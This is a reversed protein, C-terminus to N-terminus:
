GRDVIINTLNNREFKEILENYRQEGEQFIEDANLQIDGFPTEINSYRRRIRGIQMMFMAICLDIFYDELEPYIDSLEPDIVREYVITASGNFIPTIRIRNPPIFQHTYHYISFLETTNARHVNLAYEPVEEYNFAGIFPHGTLLRTGFTPVFETISLIQRDDPDVVYYESKRGDIVRIDPNATDITISWKSPFYKSFKKVANRRLYDVIEDDTRELVQFPLSLEDKIRNVVFSWDLM